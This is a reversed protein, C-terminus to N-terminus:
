GKAFFIKEKESLTKINLLRCLISIETSSFDSVNNIKKQLGYYSLDLQEALYKKKYGSKKIKEELLATNNM